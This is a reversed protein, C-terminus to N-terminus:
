FPVGGVKKIAEHAAPSTAFDVFKKINGNVVEEKYILALHGFSPYGSATPRKGDISVVQVDAGKAVDYPGFGITNAKEEVVFFAEPTSFATKSKTTLTLDKFGPFSKRLVKLSSDGDERRVVRIKADKGGVDKWNTIKGSYIGCVQETSLNKVRVSKNVFFVVPYRAYEFYSLGFPKEKDKIPRAVRGIQNKGTGVAKIGGGSGISKPVDITVEPNSQSFAEGVSKLINVGDGTGVISIVEALIFNPVTLCFGLLLMSTIIKKM